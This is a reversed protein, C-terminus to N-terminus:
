QFLSEKQSLQLWWKSLKVTAVMIQNVAISYKHWLHDRIHEMQRLCLGTRGWDHSTV